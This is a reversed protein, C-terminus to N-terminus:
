FSSSSIECSKKLLFNSLLLSLHIHTHICLNCVDLSATKLIYIYIYLYKFNQQFFNRSLKLISVIYAFDYAAEDWPKSGALTFTSVAFVNSSKLVWVLM